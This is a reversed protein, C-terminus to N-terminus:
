ELTGMVLSSVSNMNENTRLMDKAALRIGKGVHRRMSGNAIRHTGKKHLRREYGSGLDMIIGTRAEM